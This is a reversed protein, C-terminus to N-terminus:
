KDIPFGLRIRILSNPKVESFTPARCEFIDYNFTIRTDNKYTGLNVCIDYQDRYTGLHNLVSISSAKTDIIIKDTMVYMWSSDKNDILELYTSLETKSIQVVKDTEFDFEIKGMKTSIAFGGNIQTLAGYSGNLKLRSFKFGLEKDNVKLVIIPDKLDLVYLDNVYGTGVLEFKTYKMLQNNEDSNELGFRSLIKNLCNLFGDEWLGRLILKNLSEMCQTVLDLANIFETFSGSDYFISNKVIKVTNCQKWDLKTIESIQNLFDMKSIELIEYQLHNLEEANFYSNLILIYCQSVSENKSILKSSSFRYLSEFELNSDKQAVAYNNVVLTSRSFGRELYKTIVQNVKKIMKLGYCMYVWSFAYANPIEFKEIFEYFASWDKDNVISFRFSYYLYNDTSLLWDIIPSLDSGLKQYIRIEYRHEPKGMIIWLLAKNIIMGLDEQSEVFNSSFQLM